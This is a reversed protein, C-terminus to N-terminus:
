SRRFMFKGDPSSLVAGHPYDISSTHGMISAFRLRFVAFHSGVGGVNRHQKKKAAANFSSTLKRRYAVESLM